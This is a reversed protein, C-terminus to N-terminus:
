PFIEGTWFAYLSANSLVSYLTHSKSHTATHSAHQIPCFCQSVLAEEARSALVLKKIKGTVAGKRGGRLLLQTENCHTLALSPCPALTLWATFSLCLSLSLQEALFFVDWIIRENATLGFAWCSERNFNTVSCQVRHVQCSNPCIGILLPQWCCHKKLIFLSGLM